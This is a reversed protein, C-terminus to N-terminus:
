VDPRHPGEIDITVTFFTVGSFVVTTVFDSSALRVEFAPAVSTVALLSFVSVAHRIFRIV